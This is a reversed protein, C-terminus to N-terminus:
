SSLRKELEDTPPTTYTWIYKDSRHGSVRLAAPLGEKEAVQRLRTHRLAHPHVKLQADEPLHANAQREVRKIIAWAQKRGLRAGTNTIFIPGDADGRVQMWEALSRRAEASMIADKREGGKRQVKILKRKAIQWVDCSLLESIRLGTGFLLELLTVDRQGQHVGRHTTDRLLRAASLLRLQEARTLGKWDGEPEPPAKVGDTPCGLPFPCVGSHHAWRLWHRVTKYNRAVTAESFTGKGRDQQLWSIFEELSARYVDRPHYHQYTGFYFDLFRQLDRRKADRTHGM